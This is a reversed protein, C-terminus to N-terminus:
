AMQPKSWISSWTSSRPAPDYKSAPVVGSLAPREGALQPRSFLQFAVQFLPNRGLDRAPHLADVITEFPVDQHAYAALATERVRRLLEGFTPDGSLDTRMVLTNVFFGILGEVEACTRGAIPCGIAIDCQGTYRHLVVEFAALLTM